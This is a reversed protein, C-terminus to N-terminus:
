RICAKKFIIGSAIKKAMDSNIEVKTGVQALAADTNASRNNIPQDAESARSLAPSENNKIEESTRKLSSAADPEYLLGDDIASRTHNGKVHVIDTLETEGVQMMREKLRRYAFGEYTPTKFDGYLIASEGGLQVVRESIYRAMEDVDGSIETFPTHINGVIRGARSLVIFSMKARDGMRQSNLFKAVDELASFIFAFDDASEIREGSTFNFSGKEVFVREVVSFEGARRNLRNHLGSGRHLEKDSQRQINNTGALHNDTSISRGAGRMDSLSVTEAEDSFDFDFPGGYGEPNESTYDIIKGDSTEYRSAFNNKKELYDVIPESAMPADDMDYGYQEKVVDRVATKGDIARFGGSTM